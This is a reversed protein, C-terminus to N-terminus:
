PVIHGRRMTILQTVAFPGAWTSSLWRWLMILANAASPALRGKPLAIRGHRDRPFRSTASAWPVVNDNALVKVGEEHSAKHREIWPLKKQRAPMMRCYDVLQIANMATLDYTQDDIHRRTVQLRKDDRDCEGCKQEAL